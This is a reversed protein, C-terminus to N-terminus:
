WEDEEGMLWDGFRGLAYFGLVVLGALILGAEATVIVAIIQTTTELNRALDM